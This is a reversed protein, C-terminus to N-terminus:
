SCCLSEAKVFVCLFVCLIMFILVTCYNLRIQVTNKKDYWLRPTLNTADVYEGWMAVEGGIVLKKQEDTGLDCFVSM